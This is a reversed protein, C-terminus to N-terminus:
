VMAWAACTGSLIARSGSSGGARDQYQYLRRGNEIKTGIFSQPPLPWLETIRGRADYEIQSYANGRLALHQMLTEIYEFGTMYPNPNELVQILNHDPVRKRGGDAQREYMLLPISALTESLVRVCAYVASLQLSSEPTIYRGAAARNAERAEIVVEFGGRQEAEEAPVGGLRDILWTRVSM